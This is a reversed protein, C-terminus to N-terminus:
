LQEGEDGQAIGPRRLWRSYHIKINQRLSGNLRQRLDIFFDAFLRFPNVQHHPPATQATHANVAGNHM